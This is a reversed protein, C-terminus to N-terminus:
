KTKEEVVFPFDMQVNSSKANSFLYVTSDVIFFNYPCVEHIGWFTFTYAFM